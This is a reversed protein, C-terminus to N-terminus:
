LNLIIIFRMYNDYMYMRTPTNLPPAFPRAGGMFDILTHDVRNKKYATATLYQEKHLYNYNYLILIICHRWLKFLGPPIALYGSRRFTEFHPPPSFYM